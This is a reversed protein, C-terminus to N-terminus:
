TPEPGKSLVYDIATGKTVITGPPHSQTIVNGAPMPADFAETTNRPLLGAEVLTQVAVAQTMGRLDPVAVNGLGAAVTVKVASGTDVQVAQLRDQTLIQGAPAPATEQPTAALTLGLATAQTTADDISTGVFNPVTVKAVPPTSPGSVAQFV